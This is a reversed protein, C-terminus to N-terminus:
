RNARVKEAAVLWREWMEPDATGVGPTYHMQGLLAGIEAPRSVREWYERIFEFMALYAQEPTLPKLASPALADRHPDPVEAGTQLKKVAALWDGWMAPDTTGRGPTYGCYGFFDGFDGPVPHQAWQMELFEVVARYAREPDM